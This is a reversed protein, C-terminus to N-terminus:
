CPYNPVVDHVPKGLRFCDVVHVWFSFFDIFTYFQATTDLCSVTMPNITMVM